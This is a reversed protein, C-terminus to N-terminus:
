TGHRGGHALGRPAAPAGPAGPHRPPPHRGSQLRPASPRRRNRKRTEAHFTALARSCRPALGLLSTLAGAAGSAVQLGRGAVAWDQTHAPHRPSSGPVPPRLSLSAPRRPAHGAIRVATGAQGGCPARRGAKDEVTPGTGACLIHRNRVRRVSSPQHVAQNTNVVGLIEPGATGRGKHGWPGPSRHAGSAQHDSAPSLRHRRRQPRRCICVFSRESM